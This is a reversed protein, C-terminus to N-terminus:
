LRLRSYPFLQRFPPAKGCMPRCLRLTGGTLSSDNHAATEPGKLISRGCKQLMATINGVSPRGRLHQLRLKERGPFRWGACAAKQAPAWGPNSDNM